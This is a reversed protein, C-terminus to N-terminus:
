VLSLETFVTEALYKGKRTLMIRNGSKKLLERELLGPIEENLHDQIFRFRTLDIGRELRLGTLLTEVENREPTLKEEDENEWRGNLCKQIYRPVSNALVSRVGNIYSFAGPGLGLYEDNNWYILNHKSEYGPKAFSSIEYQIYGHQEVLIREVAEMMEAHLKESPLPLQNKNQRHGFVTRPHVNLDYIVVQEAGVDACTKLAEEVDVITQRPLRIILDLSINKFGCSRLLSVTDVTTQADHIRGMTKLLKDNFSQAGVSIRNIGLRRYAELKREDVEGPNVECTIEADPRWSFQKQILSFIHTMEEADLSSPTGGGLYVTDFILPGTTEYVHQIEKELARFYDARLAPSANASVVFNCYHCKRICFPIHLYLGKSM